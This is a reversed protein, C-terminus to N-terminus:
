LWGHREENRYKPCNHYEYWDGDTRDLTRCCDYINGPPDYNYNVLYSPDCDELDIHSFREDREQIRTEFIIDSHRIWPTHEDFCMFLWSSIRDMPGHLDGGSDVVEALRITERDFDSRKM